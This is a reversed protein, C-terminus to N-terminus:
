LILARLWSSWTFLCGISSLFFVAYDVGNATVLDSAIYLLPGIESISGLDLGSRLLYLPWM